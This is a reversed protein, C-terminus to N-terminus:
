RDQRSVQIDISKLKRLSRHNIIETERAIFQVTKSDEEFRILRVSPMQRIMAIVDETHASSGGKNIKANWWSEGIGLTEQALHASTETHDSNMFDDHFPCGMAQGTELLLGLFLLAVTKM